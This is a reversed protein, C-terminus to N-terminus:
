VVITWKLFELLSRGEDWYKEENFLNVGRALNSANGWLQEKGKKPLISQMLHNLYNLYNFNVSATLSDRRYSQVTRIM